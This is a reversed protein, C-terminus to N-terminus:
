QAAVAGGDLGSAGAEVNHYDLIESYRRSVNADRWKLHFRKCM